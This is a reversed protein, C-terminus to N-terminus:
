QEGGDLRITTGNLWYGQSLNHVITQALEEPDVANGGPIRHPASKHVRLRETIEGSMPTGDMWGPEYAYIAFPWEAHERAACRIGMSLAAKSACYGGSRSRAVQASNSSISAFHKPLSLADDLIKRDPNRWYRAWESLLIMHGFFNVEMQTQMTHLWGRGKITGEKNIGATCVVHDWPGFDPRTLFGHVMSPKTIDLTWDEGAIGATEVGYGAKQAAIAVHYGLSQPRAGVVLVNSM